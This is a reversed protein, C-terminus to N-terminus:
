QDESNDTFVKDAWEKWEEMNQEESNTVEDDREDRDYESPQM